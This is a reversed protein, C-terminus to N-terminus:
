VAIHSESVLLVGSRSLKARYTSKELIVALGSHQNIVIRSFLNVSRLLRFREGLM